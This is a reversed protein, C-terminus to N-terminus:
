ERKIIRDPFSMGCQFLIADTERFLIGCFRSLSFIM